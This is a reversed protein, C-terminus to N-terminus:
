NNCLVCFSEHMCFNSTCRPLNLPYYTRTLRVPVNFTLRSVLEVSDIDGRILNPMFITGLMTGSNVLTPLNLLLLRSQYSPPRVNQDWNLGRLAFLLFKKTGVCYPWYASSITSELGFFLMGFYSPCPLYIIIQNYLPWWIRKVL